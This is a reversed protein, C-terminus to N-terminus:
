WGLTLRCAPRSVQLLTFREPQSPSILNDVLKDSNNETEILQQSAIKGVLDFLAETISRRIHRLCQPPHSQLTSQVDGIYYVESYSRSFARPNRQRGNPNSKAM